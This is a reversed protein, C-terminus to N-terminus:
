KMLNLDGFEHKNKVGVYGYLINQCYLYHKPGDM